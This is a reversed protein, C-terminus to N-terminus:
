QSLVLDSLLEGNNFGASLVQFCYGSELDLPLVILILDPVGM